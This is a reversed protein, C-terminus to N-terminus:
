CNTTRLSYANLRCLGIYINIMGGGLMEDHGYGIYKEGRDAKAKAYQRSGIHELNDWTTSPVYDKNVSPDVVPAVDYTRAGIKKTKRGSADRRALEKTKKQAEDERKQEAEKSEKSGFLTQQIRKLFPVEARSSPSTHFQRLAHARCTRCVYQQRTVHTFLRLAQEIGRVRSM